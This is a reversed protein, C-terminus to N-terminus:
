NKGIWKSGAPAEYRDMKDLLDEIDESILLMDRNNKRLLGRSTMTDLLQVLGDYFGQVNLLGIPKRHLQLQANTLAEFLEDLTGYGGPLAIIGDALDEIKIKRQSM